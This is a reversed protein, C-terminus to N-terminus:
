PLNLGAVRPVGLRFARPGLGRYTDDDEIVTGLYYDRYWPLWGHVGDNGYQHADTSHLFGNPMQVGLDTYLFELGHLPEHIFVETPETSSALWDAAPVDGGNVTSWLTQNSAQSRGPGWGWGGNLQGGTFFVTAVDYKGRPLYRQVDSQQTPASPLYANGDFAYSSFPDPSVVSEASWSVRGDTLRRIWTAVSNIYSSQAAAIRDSAITAFSPPSAINTTAKVIMLAKLDFEVPGTREDYGVPEVYLNASDGCAGVTWANAAGPVLCTNQPSRLRYLAPQAESRPRLTDLTFYVSANGCAGLVTTSGVASLCQSTSELKLEYRSSGRGVLRWQQQSRGTYQAGRLVGDEDARTLTLRDARSVIRYLGVELPDKAADLKVWNLNQGATDFRARLTHTGASVSFSPSIVSQWSQWAGTNPLTLSTVAAGDVLVQLKANAQTTASRSTLTYRGSTPVSVRWEVYDGPDIWGANQGGGADTTNELQIGASGDNTEAELRNAINRGVDNACSPNTDGNVKVEWLSYGWQTTRQTGYIRLYRGVRASLATLSDTRAGAAAGTVTAITTWTNGDDSLEVRYDRASAAEWSLVVDNIYRRAGLDIRLWQPDSAASSWRTGPNGDVALSAVLAATENSSSTATLGSLPATTCLLQTASGLQEEEEVGSVDAGCGVLLSTFVGLMGLRRSM